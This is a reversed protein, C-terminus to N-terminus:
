KRAELRIIQRDVYWRAKKLDEIEVGKKDARLIYKIANGLNFGLEYHEIIKIPEHPNAEGGYHDPRVVKDEAQYSVKRIFENRNPFQSPTHDGGFSCNSVHVGCTDCTDRSSTM